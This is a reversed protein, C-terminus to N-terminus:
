SSVLPGCKGKSSANPIMAYQLFKGCLLNDQSSQAFPWTVMKYIDLSTTILVLQIYVKYIKLKIYETRLDHTSIFPGTYM